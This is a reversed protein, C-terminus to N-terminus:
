LADMQVALDHYAAAKALDREVGVGHEYCNAIWQIAMNCGSEVLSLLLDFGLVPDPQQCGWENLNYVAVMFNAYPDVMAIKVFANYAERRLEDAELPNKTVNALTHKIRGVASTAAPINFENNVYEYWQLAKNYNIGFDENIGEEYYEGVKLAAAADGFIGGISYYTFAVRQDKPIACSNRQYPISLGIRYIDGLKCHLGKVSLLAAEEFTNLAKQYEEIRWYLDGLKHFAERNGQSVALRLYNLAEANNIDLGYAGYMYATGLALQDGPDKKSIRGSISAIQKECKYKYSGSIKRDNLFTYQNIHRIHSGCDEYSVGKFNRLTAFIYGRRNFRLYVRVAGKLSVQGEFMVSDNNRIYDCNAAAKEKDDTESDGSVSTLSFPVVKWLFNFGSKKMENRLALREDEVLEGINISAENVSIFDGGGCTDLLWLRVIDGYKVYQSDSADQNYVPSGAVHKIVIKHAVLSTPKIHMSPLYEYTQAEQIMVPHNHMSEDENAFKRFQWEAEDNKFLMVGWRCFIKHEQEDRVNQFMCESLPSRSCYICIIQDTAKEETIFFGYDACASRCFNIAAKSDPFVQSLLKEFLAETHIYTTEPASEQDKNLWEKYNTLELLYNYRVRGDDLIINEYTQQVKHRQEEDLLEYVPKLERRQTVTQNSEVTNIWGKVDKWLLVVSNGGISNWHESKALSKEIVNTVTAKSLRQESKIVAGGSELKANEQNNTELQPIEVIEPTHDSSSKLPMDFFIELDKDQAPHHDEQNQSSVSFAIRGGVIHFSHNFVYKTSITIGILISSPYYYGFRQFVNQLAYYTDRDEKGVLLAKNIAEKFQSTPQIFEDYLNLEKYTVYAVDYAAETKSCHNERTISREKYEGESGFLFGASGPLERDTDIDLSLYDVIDKVGKPYRKVHEVNPQDSFNRLMILRSHTKDKTFEIVQYKAETGDFHIGKPIEPFSNVYGHSGDYLRLVQARQEDELLEYIPRLSSFQTRTQNNQISDIWNQCGTVLSSGGITEIQINDEFGCRKLLIDISEIGDNSSWVGLPNSPYARYVIRGGLSISSPYYYGFRGFVKQLEQYKEKDSEMALAKIVARKFKDTGKIYKPDFVLLNSLAGYIESTMQPQCCTIVLPKGFVTKAQQNVERYTVYMVFYRVERTSPQLKGSNSEIHYDTAARVFGSDEAKGDLFDNPLFAHTGISTGLVTPRVMCEIRPKGAVSVLKMLKTIDTENVLEVVDEESLFGGFHVGKTVGVSGRTRSLLILANATNSDTEILHDVQPTPQSYQMKYIRQVESSVKDELLDYAPNVDFSTILVQRTAISEFWGEIDPNDRLLDLDGGFAEWPVNEKSSGRLINKAIVKEIIEKTTGLLCGAPSYLFKGGTVIWYPYYYGFEKFVYQLETLKENDTTRQLAYHVAEEFEKTARLAAPPFIIHKLPIRLECAENKFSEYDQYEEPIEITGGTVATKAAVIFEHSGPLPLKHPKYM